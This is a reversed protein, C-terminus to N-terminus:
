TNAAGTHDVWFVVTGGEDVVQLIDLNSPNKFAASFSSGFYRTLLASATSTSPNATAVGASTLNWVVKGGEDVVQLLDLSSPNKVSAALSSGFLRIMLATATAAAM